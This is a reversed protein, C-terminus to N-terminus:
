AVEQKDDAEVVTKIYEVMAGFETPEWDRKYQEAGHSPWPWFTRYNGDRSFWVVSVCPQDDTGVVVHPSGGRSLRFRGVGPLADLVDQLKQKTDETM